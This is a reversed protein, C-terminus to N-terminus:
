KHDMRLVVITAQIDKQFHIARCAMLKKIKVVDWYVPPMTRQTGFSIFLIVNVREM